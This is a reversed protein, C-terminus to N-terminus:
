RKKKSARSAAARREHRNRQPQNMVERLKITGKLSLPADMKLVLDSLLVAPINDLPVEVGGIFARIGSM